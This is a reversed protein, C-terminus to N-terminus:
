KASKRPRRWRDITLEPYKLRKSLAETIYSRVTRSHNSVAANLEDDYFLNALRPFKEKITVLDLAKREVFERANFLDRDFLPAQHFVVTATSDSFQTLQKVGDAEGILFPKSIPPKRQARMRKTRETGIM